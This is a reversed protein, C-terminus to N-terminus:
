GKTSRSRKTTAKTTKTTRKAPAHGDLRVLEDVAYKPIRWERRIKTAPLTGDAIMRRVTDISTRLVSAVEPIKLVVPDLERKSSSPKERAM